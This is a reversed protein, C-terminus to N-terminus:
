GGRLVWHLGDCWSLRRAITAEISARSAADHQPFVSFRSAQELHAVYIGAGRQFAMVRFNSGCRGYSGFTVRVGFQKGPRTQHERCQLADARRNHGDAADAHGDTQARQGGSRAYM